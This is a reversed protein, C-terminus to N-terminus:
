RVLLGVWSALVLVLALFPMGPKWARPYIVGTYYNDIFGTETLRPWGGRTRAANELTTLPCPLPRIQGAVAWALAPLHLWLVWPQFWAIFGGLVALVSFAVHSLMTSVALVRYRARPPRTLTSSGTM